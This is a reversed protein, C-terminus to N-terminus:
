SQRLCRTRVKPSTLPLGPSIELIVSVDMKMLACPPMISTSLSLGSPPLFIFAASNTYDGGAADHVTSSFGHQGHATWLDVEAKSRRIPLRSLRSAGIPVWRRVPVRRTGGRLGNGSTCPCGDMLLHSAQAGRRSIVPTHATAGERRRACSGAERRDPAHM